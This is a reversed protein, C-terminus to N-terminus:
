RAALELRLPPCGLPQPTMAEGPRPLDVDGAAVDFLNGTTRLEYSGPADLPYVEALDFVVSEEAGPAITVYAERDPAARKAMAGNYPLEEGGRLVVFPTGLWAREFPTNWTLVHAPVGGENLLTLRVRAPGGAVPTGEAALRCSLRASEAAVSGMCSVTTVAALFAVLAGGRRPARTGSGIDLRSIRGHPLMPRM